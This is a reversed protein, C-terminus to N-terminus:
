CRNHDLLLSVLYFFQSLYGLLLKNIKGHKSCRLYFPVITLIIPFYELVYVLKIEIFLRPKSPNDVMKRPQPILNTVRLPMLYHVKTEKSVKIHNTGTVRGRTGECPTPPISQV